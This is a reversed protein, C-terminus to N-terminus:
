RHYIQKAQDIMPEDRWRRQPDVPSNEDHMSLARFAYDYAHYRWKEDDTLTSYGPGREPADTRIKARLYDRDAKSPFRANGPLYTKPPRRLEAVVECLKHMDAITPRRTEAIRWRSAAEAFVEVGFTQMDTLWDSVQAARIAEHDDATWYHALLRSILAAM